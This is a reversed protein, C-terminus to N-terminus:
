GYRTLAYIILGDIVLVTVSWLPYAGIAMLQAIANIGAILIGLFAGSPIRNAILLAIGGQIMGVVLNVGGWFSVAGFLLADSFFHEEKVLGAIGYLANAAAAILLMALAFRIWSRGAPDGPEVAAPAGAVESGSGRRAGATPGSAM